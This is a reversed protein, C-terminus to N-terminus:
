LTWGQRYERRLYQNAAAYNTVKLNPGDWLLKTGQCRVAVNGLLCVETLLGSHNVFDSGAPPGGRCANIWEKHHGPSLPLRRPLGKAIDQEPEPFLETGMLMGKEGIYLPENIPIDPEIAKPRPPRLGGDYWNLIM